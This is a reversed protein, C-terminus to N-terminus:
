SILLSMFDFFLNAYLLSVTHRICYIGRFVHLINMAHIRLCRNLTRDLGCSNMLMMTFSVCIFNHHKRTKGRLGCNKMM